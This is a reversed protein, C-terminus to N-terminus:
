RQDETPGDLARARELARKLARRASLMASKCDPCRCGYGYGESTGHLPNSPDSAMRELRDRTRANLARRSRPSGAGHPGSHGRLRTCPGSTTGIGCPPLAKERRLARRIGRETAGDIPIATGSEDVLRIM